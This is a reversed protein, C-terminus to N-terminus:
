LDFDCGLQILLNQTEQNFPVKGDEHIVWEASYLDAHYNAFILHYVDDGNSKKVLACWVDEPPYPLPKSGNRESFPEDVVFHSGNAYTRLDIEKTFHEPARAQIAQEITAKGPTGWGKHAIYANAATQWNEVHHGPSKQLAIALTVILSVGVLLAIAAILTKKM